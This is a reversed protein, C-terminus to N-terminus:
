TAASWREELERAVREIEADLGPGNVLTLYPEDPEEFGRERMAAYVREDADSRDHESRSLKRAALRELVDTEEATVLVHVLAAGRRRALEAVSRRHARLLYTADVVVRHGEELLRDVVGDLIRFVAENEENTYSAAVFLRSRLADSAVHAAGLRAALLRACHSKGAGPFGMLLAVAPHGHPRAPAPIASRLGAAVEGVRDALARTQSRSASPARRTM